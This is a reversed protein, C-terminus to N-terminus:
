RIFKRRLFSGIVALGTGCAAGVLGLLAFFPLKGLIPDLGQYGAAMFTFALPFGYAIGSFIAEKYAPCWLGFLVGAIGWPVLSLASSVFLYRSSIIGFVIGVLVAFLLKKGM